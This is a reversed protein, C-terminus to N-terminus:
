RQIRAPASNMTLGPKSKSVTLNTFRAPFSIILPASVGVSTILAQFAPLSKTFIKGQPVTPPAFYMLASFAGRGCIGITGVPPTFRFVAASKMRAPAAASPMPPSNTDAEASSDPLVAGITSAACPKTSITRLARECPSRRLLPSLRQAEDGIVEQEMGLSCAPEIFVIGCGLRNQVVVRMQRSTIDTLVAPEAVQELNREFAIMVLPSGHSRIADALAVARTFDRRLFFEQGPRAGHRVGDAIRQILPRM